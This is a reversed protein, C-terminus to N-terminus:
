QQSALLVDILESKEVCHEHALGRSRLEAKLEKSSLERAEEPSFTRPTARAPGASSGAGAPHPGADDSLGSGRAREWEEHAAAAEATLDSDTDSDEDGEGGGAPAFGNQMMEDMAERMGAQRIAEPVAAEFAEGLVKLALARRHRAKKDVGNDQLLKKCVHRLTKEIDLVSMDWMAELIEGMSRAGRKERLRELESLAGALENDMPLPDEVGTVTITREAYDVKEVVVSGDPRVAAPPAMAKLLDLAKAELALMQQRERESEAKAAEARAKAAAKKSPQALGSV